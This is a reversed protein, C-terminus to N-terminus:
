LVGAKKKRQKMQWEATMWPAKGKSKVEPELRRAQEKVTALYGPVQKDNESIAFHIVKLGDSNIVEPPTVLRELGHVNGFIDAQGVRPLSTRRGQTM